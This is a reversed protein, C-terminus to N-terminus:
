RRTSLFRVLQRMEDATLAGKSYAPMDSGGNAIRQTMREPALRAAVRSLDPGRRGGRRRHVHCSSCSKAVFLRAGAREEASLGDTVSIPLALDEPPLPM